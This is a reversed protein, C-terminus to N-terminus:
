GPEGRVGEGDWVQSLKSALLVLRTQFGFHEWVVSFGYRNPVM